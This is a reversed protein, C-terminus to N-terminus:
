LNQQGEVANKLSRNSIKLCWAPCGLPSYAVIVLVSCWGMLHHALESPQEQGGTKLTTVKLYSCKTCLVPSGNPLYPPQIIALAYRSQQGFSSSFSKEIGCICHGGISATKSEGSTPSPLQSCVISEPESQQDRFAPPNACRQFDQWYLLSIEYILLKEHGMIAYCALCSWVSM